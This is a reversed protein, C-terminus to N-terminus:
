GSYSVAAYGASQVTFAFLGAITTSGLLSEMAPVLPPSVVLLLTALALYGNIAGWESGWEWDNTYLVVGFVVIMVATAYSITTEPGLSFLTDLPNLGMVSFSDLLGLELAGALLFVPFALLDVADIQGKM